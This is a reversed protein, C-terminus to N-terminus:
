GRVARNIGYATGVVGAGTGVTKAGGRIMEGYADDMMSELQDQRSADQGRKKRFAKSATGKDTLSQGDKLRKAADESLTVVNKAHRRGRSYQAVGPIYKKAMSKVNFAEKEMEEELDAAFHLFEDVSLENLDFAGAEKDMGMEEELHAAFEIFEGVSLDNLDFAGAEKEFSDDELGELIGLLEEDSLESLSSAIKEQPGLYDSLDVDGNEVLQLFDAASIDNLTTM